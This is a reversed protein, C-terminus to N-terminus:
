KKIGVIKEYSDKLIHSDYSGDDNRIELVTGDEKAIDDMVSGWIVSQIKSKYEPYDKFLIGLVELPLDREHFLIIFASELIRFIFEESDEKTKKSFKDILHITELTDLLYEDSKKAVGAKYNKQTITEQKKIVKKKRM